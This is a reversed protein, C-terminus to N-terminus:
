ASRLTVHCLLQFQSLCVKSLYWGWRATRLMQSRLYLIESTSFLKVSSLKIHPSSAASESRRKLPSFRKGRKRNRFSPSYVQLHFHIIRKLWIYASILLICINSRKRQPTQAAFPKQLKKATSFNSFITACPLSNYTEVLILCCKDLCMHVAGAEFFTM